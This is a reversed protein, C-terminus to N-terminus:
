EILLIHGSSMSYKGSTPFARRCLEQWLQDLRESNDRWRIDQIQECVEEVDRGMFWETLEGDKIDLICIMAYNWRRYFMM